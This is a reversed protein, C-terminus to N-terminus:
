ELVECYIRLILKHIEVIGSLVQNVLVANRVEAPMKALKENFHKELTKCM